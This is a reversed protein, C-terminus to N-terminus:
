NNGHLFSLNHLTGAPKRHVTSHAVSNVNGGLNLSSWQGSHCGLLASFPTLQLSFHKWDTSPQRWAVTFFQGVVDARLFAWLCASGKPSDVVPLFARLFTRNVTRLHDVIRLFSWCHTSSSCLLTRSTGLVEETHGTSSQLTEADVLSALCRLKERDMPVSTHTTYVPLFVATFVRNWSFPYAQWVVALWGMQLFGRDRLSM